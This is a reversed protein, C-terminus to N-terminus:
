YAHIVQVLCICAKESAYVQVYKRQTRGAYERLTQMSGNQLRQMRRLGTVNTIASACAKIKCRLAVATSCMASECVYRGLAYCCIQLSAVEENKVYNSRVKAYM